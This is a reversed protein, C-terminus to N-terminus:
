KLFRIRSIQVCRIQPVGPYAIVGPGGPRCGSVWSTIIRSCVSVTTCRYLDTDIGHYRGPPMILNNPGKLALTGPFSKGLANGQASTDNGKPASSSVGTPICTRLFRLKLVRSEPEALCFRSSALDRRPRSAALYMRETYSRAKGLSRRVLKREPDDREVSWMDMYPPNLGRCVSKWPWGRDKCGVGFFHDTDALIVERGDAPPPNGRVQELRRLYEVTKSQWAISENHSENSIEYLMHDFRGVTDVVKRVYAWQRRTVPHDPGLWTHLEKGQGDADGDLSNVNNASHYPHYPWPNVKGRKSDISWGQFLM